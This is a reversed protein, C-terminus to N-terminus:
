RSKVLPYANYVLQNDYDLDKSIIEYPEEKRLVMREKENAEIVEDAIDTILIGNLHDLEHSLITSEFGEFIDVKVNGLEDQYELAIEYPRRVNGALDGCSLCAEWSRTLGRREIVHPNIIIRGDRVEDNSKYLSTNKLYIIRKAIGIQIASVAYLDNEFAFKKLLDIEWKLYQNFKTVESSDQRLYNEGKLTEITIPKVGSM